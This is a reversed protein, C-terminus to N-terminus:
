SLRELGRGGMRREMIRVARRAVQEADAIGSHVHMEVSPGGSGANTPPAGILGQAALLGLLGSQQVLDVARQPRTLPIIVEPGAEGVLAPTPGYM